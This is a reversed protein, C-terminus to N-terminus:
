KEKTIIECHMARMGSTQFEQHKYAEDVPIANKTNEELGRKKKCHLM